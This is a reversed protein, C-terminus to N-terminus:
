KKKFYQKINVILAKIKAILRTIFNDLKPETINKNITLGWWERVPYDYSVHCYGKDGWYKGWSNQIIWGDKDWGVLCMAHSGTYSEDSTPAKTNKGFKSYLPMALVVAGCNMLAKKIETESYCRFYNLIVYQAAEKDYTEKNQLLRERVEPYTENWPFTSYLCDGSKNVSKIADRTIMGETGNERNAYIYGRSYNHCNKFGAKFEGYGLAASIAHAVCSGIVGQSMIAVNGEVHYEEPLPAEAMDMVREVTYDRTDLPSFIDFDIKFKAQRKRDKLFKRDAKKM